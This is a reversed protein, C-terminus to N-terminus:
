KYSAYLIRLNIPNSTSTSNPQASDTLAAVLATLMLWDALIEPSEYM